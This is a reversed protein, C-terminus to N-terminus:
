NWRPVEIKQTSDPDPLTPLEGRSQELGKVSFAMLALGADYLGAGIFHVLRRILKIM